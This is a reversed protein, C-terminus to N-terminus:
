DVPAGPNETVPVKVDRCNELVQSIKGTSKIFFLTSNEKLKNMIAADGTHINRDVKLLLCKMHNCYGEYKIGGLATLSAVLVTLEKEPSLNPLEVILDYYDPAHSQANASGVWLVFIFVTSLKAIHRCVFFM